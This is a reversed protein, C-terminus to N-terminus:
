EETHEIPRPVRPLREIVDQVGSDDLMKADIIGQRLLSEIVRSRHALRKKQATEFLAKTRKVYAQITKPDKHGSLTMLEFETCGAEAGETIGGHRFSTFSLKKKKLKPGAIDHFLTYFDDGLPEEPPAWAGLTGDKPILIGSTRSGKLEDLATELGPYLSEGDSDRLSVWYEDGTKFHTILIENPREIPKYHEVLLGTLISEVRMELEFAFWAAVGLNPKGFERASMVFFALDEITAHVTKRKKRKRRKTRAFPNEFPVDKDLGYMSYFMTGFTVKGHNAQGSRDQEITAGDPGSKLAVSYEAILQRTVLVTVEAIQLSGFRRGEYPGSRFVHNAGARLVQRYSRQTRKRLSKFSDDNEFKEILADVSGNGGSGLVEIANGDKRFARLAPLLEEQAVRIALALDTGFRKRTPKFGARKIAGNVEWRYTYRQDTPSWHARVYHPLVVATAPVVINPM